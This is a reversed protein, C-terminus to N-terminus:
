TPEKIVIQWGRNHWFYEIIADIFSRMQEISLDALSPLETHHYEYFVGKREPHPLKLMVPSGDSYYQKERGLFQEKLGQKVKDLSQFEGDQELYCAQVQECVTGHFAKIQKYTKPNKEETIKLVLNECDPLRALEDLMRQRPLKLKGGEISCLYSLNVKSKM